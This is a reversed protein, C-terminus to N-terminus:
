TLKKFLYYLIVVITQTLQNLFNMITKFSFNNSWISNPQGIYRCSFESIKMKKQILFLIINLNEAPADFRIKKKLIHLIAKKNYCRFANTYDRIQSDFLYSSINSVFYSIFKRFNSRNIVKSNKKYKSGISVDYNKELLQIGKKIEDPFFSLDSDMEVFYHVNLNKVSWSFGKKVADCRGNKRRPGDLILYNSKFNKKISEKTKLDFSDDVFCIFYNKLISKNFLNSLKKMDKNNNFTPIIIVTNFKKKLM